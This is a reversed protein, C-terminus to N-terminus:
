EEEERGRRRRKEEEKEEKEGGGVRRAGLRPNPITFGRRPGRRCLTM